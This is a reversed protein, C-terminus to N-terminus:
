ASSPENRGLIERLAPDMPPFVYGPTFQLRYSALQLLCKALRSAALTPQTRGAVEGLSRCTPQLLVADVMGLVFVPGHRDLLCGRSHATNTCGLLMMIFEKAIIIFPIRLLQHREQSASPACSAPTAWTPILVSGDDHGCAVQPIYSLFAQLANFDTLAMCSTSKGVASARQKAAPTFQALFTSPSCTTALASMCEQVFATRAARFCRVGREDSNTAGCWWRPTASVIHLASAYVSAGQFTYPKNKSYVLMRDLGCEQAIRPLTLRVSSSSQRVGEGDDDDYEVSDLASYTAPLLGCLESELWRLHVALKLWSSVYPTASSFTAVHILRTAEQLAAAAVTPCSATCHARAVAAHIDGVGFVHSLKCLKGYMSVQSPRGICRVQREGRELCWFTFRCFTTTTSWSTLLEGEKEECPSITESSLVVFPFSSPGDRKSGVSGVLVQVSPPSVNQAQWRLPQPSAVATAHQPAAQPSSPDSAPAPHLLEAVHAPMHSAVHGDVDDITFGRVVLLRDEDAQEPVVSSEGAAVANSVSVSNSRVGNCCCCGCRCRKELHMDNSVHIVDGVYVCHMIDRESLREGHSVANALRITIVDGARYETPLGDFTKRPTVVNPTLSPLSSEDGEFNAYSIMGSMVQGSHEQTLKKWGFSFCSFMQPPMEDDDKCQVVASAETRRRLSGSLVKVLLKKRRADSSLIGLHCPSSNMQQQQETGDNHNPLTTTTTTTVRQRHDRKRHLLLSAVMRRIMTNDNAGCSVVMSRRTHSGGVYRVQAGQQTAVMRSISCSVVVAIEEEVSVDGSIGEFENVGGHRQDTWRAWGVCNTSWDNGRKWWLTSVHPTGKRCDCHTITRLVVTVIRSQVCHKIPVNPTPLPLGVGVDIIIVDGYRLMNSQLTTQVDVTAAQARQHLPEAASSSHEGGQSSRHFTFVGHRCSDKQFSIHQGIHHTQDVIAKFDPLLHHPEQLPFVSAIHVLTSAATSM